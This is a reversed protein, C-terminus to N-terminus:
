ETAEEGNENNEGTNNGEPFVYNNAKQELDLLYTVNNTMDQEIDRSEQKISYVNADGDNEIMNWLDKLIGINYTVTKELSSYEGYGYEKKIDDLRTNWADINDQTATVINKVENYLAALNSKLIGIHMVYDPVKIKITHLAEEVTTKDM